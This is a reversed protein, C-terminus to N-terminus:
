KVFVERQWVVLNEVCQSLWLQLERSLSEPFAATVSVAVVAAGRPGSGGLQHWPAAAAQQM